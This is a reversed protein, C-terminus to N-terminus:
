YVQLIPLIIKFTQLNQIYYNQVQQSSEPLQTNYRFFVLLTTQFQIGYFTARRSVERVTILLPSGYLTLPM